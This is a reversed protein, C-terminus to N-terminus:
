KQKLVLIGYSSANKERQKIGESITEDSGPLILDQVRTKGLTLTKIFSLDIKM